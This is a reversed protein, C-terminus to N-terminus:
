IGQGHATGRALLDSESRTVHPNGKTRGPVRREIVARRRIWQICETEDVKVGLGAGGPLQPLRGGYGLQVRPQVPDSRLLHRGYCGELYRAPHAAILILQAASLLSSEGVQCGIQLTVGARRAEECRKAAAILGGCKSIRVNVGTCARHALLRELSERDSFSEDAIIEAGTESVLRAAGETDAVNLPQEFCRIGADQLARIHTVAEEDTWAQNADVRLECRPGLIQRALRASAPVERRALKLKVQAFGYLRLKLLSM